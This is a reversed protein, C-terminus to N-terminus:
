KEKRKSKRMLNIRKQSFKKTPKNENIISEITFFMVIFLLVGMVLLETM